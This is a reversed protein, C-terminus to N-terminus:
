AADMHKVCRYTRQIPLPTPHLLMCHKGRIYRSLGYPLSQSNKVALLPTMKKRISDVILGYQEAKELEALAWDSYEYYNEALVIDITDRGIWEEANVPLLLLFALCFIWLKRRM